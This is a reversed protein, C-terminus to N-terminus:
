MRLDAGSVLYKVKVHCITYLLSFEVFSTLVIVVYTCTITRLGNITASYTVTLTHVLYDSCM